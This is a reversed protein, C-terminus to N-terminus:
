SIANKEGYKENLDIFIEPMIEYLKLLLLRAFYIMEPVNNDTIRMEIIHRFERINTTMFINTLCSNPLVNRAIYHPVNNKILHKYFKNIDSMLVGYQTNLLDSINKHVFLKEYKFDNHKVFHQSKISFACLRHRTLQAMFARTCNYIYLSINIHELVSMHNNKIIKQLFLNLEYDEIKNNYKENCELGYCNRGALYILYKYNYPFNFIEIDM